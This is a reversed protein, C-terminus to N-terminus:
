ELNAATKKKISDQLGSGLEEILIKAAEDKSINHRLSMKELIEKMKPSKTLKDVENKVLSKLDPDQSPETAIVEWLAAILEKM